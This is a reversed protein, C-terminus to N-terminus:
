RERNLPKYLVMTIYKHEFRQTSRLQVFENGDSKNIYLHSLELHNSKPFAQHGDISSSPDEIITVPLQPPLEPPPRSFEDESLFVNDYSSPPSPPPEFDSLRALKEPIYDQLDLINYGFGSGDYSHPFEPAYIWCGDVIFRYQYVGIPLTKTIVFSHGVNELPETARWNDWSGAIAVNKGSHNWSIKVQKLTEHIVYELHGNLQLAQQQPQQSIVPTQLPNAPVQHNVEPSSQNARSGQPTLQDMPDSFGNIMNSDVLLEDPPFNLDQGYEEDLKKVGSTGEGDNGRCSSGM